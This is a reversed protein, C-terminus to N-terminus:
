QFARKMGEVVPDSLDLMVVLQRMAWRQDERFREEPEIDFCYNEILETDYGSSQRYFAAMANYVVQGWKQHYTSTVITYSAVGRQRMMEFTNEANEVTSRAKEDIFIRGADIGCKESLYAKMLGAETHKNPNNHGTAGGSCILITNPFVRAAAAAAECRGKLEPTMEGDKLEYGLVVFAHTPSDPIASGELASAREGGDYVHLQYSGDANVYVRMWHDAIAQAVARDGADMAEIADLVSAVAEADGPAPTECARLLNICLRGFNMDNEDSIHYVEGMATAGLLLTLAILLALTKVKM